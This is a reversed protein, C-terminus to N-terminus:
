LPVLLPHALREAWSRYEIMAYLVMIWARDNLYVADEDSIVVLDAKGAIQDLGPFLKRTKESGQDVVQLGIWLRQEVIWSKLRCCMECTPDYIVYLKEM